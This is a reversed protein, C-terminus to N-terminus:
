FNSSEGEQRVWESVAITHVYFLDGTKEEADNRRDLFMSRMRDSMKM